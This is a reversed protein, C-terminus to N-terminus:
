LNLNRIKTLDEVDKFSQHPYTESTVSKFFLEPSATAQLDLDSGKGWWNPCSELFVRISDDFRDLEAKDLIAKRSAHLIKSYKVLWKHIEENQM